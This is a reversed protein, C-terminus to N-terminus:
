NQILSFADILPNNTVGRINIQWWKNRYKAVKADICSKPHKM